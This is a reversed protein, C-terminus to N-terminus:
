RDWKSTDELIIGKENLANQLPNDSFFTNGDYSKEVSTDVTFVHYLESKKALETLIRDIKPIDKEYFAISILDSDEAFYLNEDDISFHVDNEKCCKAFRPYEAEQIGFYTVLSGTDRMQQVSTRFAEPYAIKSLILGVDKKYIANYAINVTSLDNDSFGKEPANFNVKNVKSCYYLIEPNDKMAEKFKPLLKASIKHKVIQDSSEFIEDLSVQNKASKFFEKISFDSYLERTDYAELKGEIVSIYEKVGQRYIDINEPKLTKDIANKYLTKLYLLSTYDIKKPTPRDYADFIKLTFETDRCFQTVAQHAAFSSCDTLKIAGIDLHLFQSEKKSRDFIEEIDIDQSFVKEKDSGVVFYIGNKSEDISKDWKVYVGHLNFREATKELNNIYKDKKIQDFTDYM